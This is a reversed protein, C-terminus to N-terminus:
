RLSEQVFTPRGLPELAGPDAFRDLLLDLSEESEVAAMTLTLLGPLPREVVVAVGAVGARSGAGFRLGGALVLLLLVAVVVPFVGGGRVFVGRGSGSTVSKLVVPQVEAVVRELLVDVLGVDEPSSLGFLEGSVQQLQGLRERCAACVGVHARLVLEEQESVCGAALLSLGESFQECNHKMVSM